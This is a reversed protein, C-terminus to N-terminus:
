RGERGEIADRFSGLSEQSSSEYECDAQQVIRLFRTAKGVREGACQDYEDLAQQITERRTSIARRFARALALVPEAAWTQETAM